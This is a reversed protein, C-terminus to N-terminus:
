SYTMTKTYKIQWSNDIKELVYIVNSGNAREYFKDLIVVSKTFDDNFSVRSFSLKASIGLAEMTELDLKSEKSFLLEENTIANLKLKDIQNSNSSLKTIAILLEEYIEEIEVKEFLTKPRYPSYKNNIRKFNKEEYKLFNENISYKFIKAISSNPKKDYNLVTERIDFTEESPKPPAYLVKPLSKYVTGIVLMEEKVQQKIFQKESSCSILIITVLSLILRM